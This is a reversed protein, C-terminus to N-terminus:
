ELGLAANCNLIIYDGATQILDNVNGTKAIASLKVETKGTLKGDTQTVGTLVSYQNDAAATAAVSSDLANIKNTVTSVTAVKNTSSNYTGDFTLADQKANWTAASAIRADTITGSTIKSAPLDPIDSAAVASSGTIHGQADYKIKLLSDTTKATVSNTHKFTNNADLKIGDSASLTSTSVSTPHGYDDFSVASIVKGNAATVNSLSSNKPAHSITRNASLDGGGTLGGGANVKITKLAHSGEDGLEVWNSATNTSAKLVYEKDGYLVVDGAAWKTHGEVTAGTEGKPDTTSVGVFHMAGTLAATKSDVYQKTAAGLDKTPDASLVVEGTFTGGSKPMANDAKTGQASTAYDKSDTYAASGLGHVKVSQASGGSPTVQFAGNTSGEAFAYTTNTDTSAITITKDSANPTVTVNTGAKIEVTDNNGFTTTGAKVKQNTDTYSSSITIKNSAADPTITVNSGPVIDIAANSGFATGNGKVTQNDNNITPKNTLDNYSINGKTATITTGSKSIGTIVAGTGSTTVTYSGKTVNIRMNADDWTVGTIFDGSGTTNIVIGNQKAWAYVDAAKAQVYNLETYTHTGDGIKFLIEPAPNSNETTGTVNVIEAALEGKLLVPNKETWTALDAIAQRTRINIVKHTDPM